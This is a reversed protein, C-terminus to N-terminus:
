RVTSAFGEYCMKSAVASSSFFEFSAAVISRCQRTATDLRCCTGQGLDRRKMLM